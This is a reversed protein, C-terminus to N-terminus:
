VWLAKKETTKVSQHCETRVLYFIANLMERWAHKSRGKPGYQVDERVLPRISEWEEDELDSTYSKIKQRKM